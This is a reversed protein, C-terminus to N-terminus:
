PQALSQMQTLPHDNWDLTSALHIKHKSLISCSSRYSKHIYEPNLKAVFCNTMLIVLVYLLVSHCNLLSTCTYNCTHRDSTRKTTIYPKLACAM